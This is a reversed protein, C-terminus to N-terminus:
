YVLYIIYGRFGEIFCLERIFGRDKCIIDMGFYFIGEFSKKGREDDKM